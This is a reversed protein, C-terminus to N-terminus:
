HRMVQFAASAREVLRRVRHQAEAEAFDHIESDAVEHLLSRDSGDHIATDPLRVTLGDQPHIVAHAQVEAAPPQPGDAQQESAYMAAAGALAALMPVLRTAM